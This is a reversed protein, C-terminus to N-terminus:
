EIRVNDIEVSFPGAPLGATFALGRVQQLDAGQFGALPIRVEAWQASVTFPALAPMRQTAPGSFLMVNMARPQGRVQFVLTKRGSFDVAAFPQAGPMFLTGAWAYPLDGAVEGQLKLAGASGGTAQAGGAQWTQTATSKGGAMADTTITWNQGYRVAISGADFDAV